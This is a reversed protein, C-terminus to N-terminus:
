QRADAWDYPDWPEPDPVKSLCQRLVRLEALFARVARDHEEAARLPEEFALVSPLPLSPRKGHGDGRDDRRSAEADEDPLRQLLRWMGLHRWIVANLLGTSRLWSAKVGDVLSAEHHELHPRDGLVDEWTKVKEVLDFVDLLDEMRLEKREAVPTIRQLLRVWECSEM